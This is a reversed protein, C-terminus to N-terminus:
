RAHDNVVLEFAEDLLEEEHDKYFQQIENLRNENQEKLNNVKSDFDDIIEQSKEQGLKKAEEISDNEMDTLKKRLDARIKEIRKDTDEVLEKTKKDITLISDIGDKLYM